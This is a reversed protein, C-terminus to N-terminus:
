GANEGSPRTRVQDTSDLNFGCLLDLLAPMMTFGMTVFGDAVSKSRSAVGSPHFVPIYEM